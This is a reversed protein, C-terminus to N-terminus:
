VSAGDQTAPQSMAITKSRVTTSWTITTVTCVLPQRKYVDLHTYSVPIATNHFLCFSVGGLRKAHKLVFTSADLCSFYVNVSIGNLTKLTQEFVSTNCVKKKMIRM